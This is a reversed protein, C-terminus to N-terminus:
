HDAVMVLDGVKIDARGEIAARIFRGEMNEVRVQGVQYGPVIFREGQSGDMVRRAEYVDLRNSPILGSRGGCALIVAGDDIGLVTTKWPQGAMCEAMQEGIEKASKDIMKNLKKIFVVDNAVIHQYDSASIKITEDKVTSLMKAATFPDYLDASVVFSIFHHSKRWWFLGTDEIYARLDIVRVVAFGQYGKRRVIDAIDFVDVVANGHRFVNLADPFGDNKESVVTLRRNERQVANLFATMFREGTKQGMPSQPVHALVVGVRQTLKDAKDVEVITSQRADRVRVPGLCGSTLLGALLGSLLLCGQFYRKRGPQGMIASRLKM